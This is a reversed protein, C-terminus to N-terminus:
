GLDYVHFMGDLEKSVWLNKEPFCMVYIHAEESTHFRAISELNFM